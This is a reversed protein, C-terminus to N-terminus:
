RQEGEVKILGSASCRSCLRGDLLGGFCGAPCPLTRMVWAPKHHKLKCSPCTVEASWVPREFNQHCLICVPMM